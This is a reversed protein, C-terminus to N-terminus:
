EDDFVGYRRGDRLARYAANIAAMAEGNDHTHDPHAAKALARYAHQVDPWSANRDLGLTVLAAALPHNVAIRHRTRRDPQSASADATSSRPSPQSTVFLSETSFVESFLRGELAPDVVADDAVTPIRGPDPRTTVGLPRTTIVAHQVFDRRTWWLNAEDAIPAVESDDAKKRSRLGKGFSTTMAGVRLEKECNRTGTGDVRLARNKLAPRGM